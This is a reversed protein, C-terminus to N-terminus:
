LPSLSNGNGAVMWDVCSTAIRRPLSEKLIDTYLVRLENGIARVTRRRGDRPTRFEAIPRKTDTPKPTDRMDWFHRCSSSQEGVALHWSRLPVRRM